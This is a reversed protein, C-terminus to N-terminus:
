KIFDTCTVPKHGAVFWWDKPTRGNKIKVKDFDPHFWAKKVGIWALYHLPTWSYENRLTSVRPNSLISPDGKKAKVWIEDNILKLM